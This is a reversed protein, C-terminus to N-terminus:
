RRPIHPSSVPNKQRTRQSALVGAIVAIGLAVCLWAIVGGMLSTDSVEIDPIKINQALDVQQSEVQPLEDVKQQPVTEFYVQQDDQSYQDRDDSYDPAADGQDDAPEDPIYPDPDPAPEPLDDGPQPDDAPQDIGAYGQDDAGNASDPNDTAFVASTGASVVFVVTFLILAITLFPKTKIM